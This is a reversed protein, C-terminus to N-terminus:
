KETGNWPLGRKRKQGYILKKIWVVMHLLMKSLREYLKFKFLHLANNQNFEERDLIKSTELVREARFGLKCSRIEELSAHALDSPKPFTYFDHGNFTM